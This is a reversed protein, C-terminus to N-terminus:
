QKLCIVVTMGVQGNLQGALLSIYFMFVISSLIMVLLLSFDGPAAKGHILGYLIMVSVPISIGFQM